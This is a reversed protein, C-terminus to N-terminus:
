RLLKNKPELHFTIPRLWFRIRKRARKIV